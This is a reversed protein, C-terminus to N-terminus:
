GWHSLSEPPDLLEEEIMLSTLKPLKLEHDPNIQFYFFGLSFIVLLFPSEYKNEQYVLDQSIVM